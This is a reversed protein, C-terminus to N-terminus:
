LQSDATTSLSAERLYKPISSHLCMFIEKNGFQQLVWLERKENCSQRFGLQYFASGTPNPLNKCCFQQPYPPAVATLFASFWQLNPQLWECIYLNLQRQHLSHNPCSLNTFDQATLFHLGPWNVSPGSVSLTPIIDQTARYKCHQLWPHHRQPRGSLFGQAIAVVDQYQGSQVM